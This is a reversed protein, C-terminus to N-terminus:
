FLTVEYPELNGITSGPFFGIRPASQVAAPLEFTGTFDAAVPLVKLSPFGAQLRAAEGNMFEASIDVPVYARVSTMHRLLLRAKTTSGSGFEVLAADPPAFRAIPEASTQLIQLETRTPYYEPLQTIQEFLRSGTEDYFHKAPLRKPTAALGELVDGAFAGAVPHAAQPRIAPSALVTM